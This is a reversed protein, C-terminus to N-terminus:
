ATLKFYGSVEYIEGEELLENLVRRIESEEARVKGAIQSFAAGKEPGMDKLAGIVMQRTSFSESITEYEVGQNQLQHEEGTEVEVVLPQEKRGYMKVLELKRVFAWQDEMVRVMEPVIYREENYERIKGIVLVVDGIKVNKLFRVDEKWAKVRISASGDDLTLSSYGEVAYMDKTPAILNVRFVNKGNCAVYPSGFEGKERGYTGALIDRIWVKCAPQMMVGEKRIRAKARLDGRGKEM